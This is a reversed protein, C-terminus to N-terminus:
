VGPYVGAQDEPYMAFEMKRCKGAMSCGICGVRIFGLRYLPNMRHKETEAYDWVEQQGMWYDSKRCTQREDQLKEFQMRTEDNDNM